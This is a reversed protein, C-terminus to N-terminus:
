IRSSTLSVDGLNRPVALSQENWGEMQESFTRELPEIKTFYQSEYEHKATLVRRREQDSLKALHENFAAVNCKANGRAIASRTEADPKWSWDNYVEGTQPFYPRLSFGSPKVGAHGYSSRRGYVSFNAQPEKTVLASAAVAKINTHIMQHFVETPM